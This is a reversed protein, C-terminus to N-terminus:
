QRPHPSGVVRTTNPDQWRISSSERLYPQFCVLFIEDRSTDNKVNLGSNEYKRFLRFVLRSRSM